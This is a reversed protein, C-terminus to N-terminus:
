AEKGGPRELENIMNQFKGSTPVTLRDHIEVDVRLPTEFFERVFRRLEEGHKQSWSGDSALRVLVRDAAKQIVQHQWHGGLKRMLRALIVSSKRRGDPLHFMPSNKGQVRALLPLGRGCPCTQPGVTAEDGVQYRIFPGRCNHLHTVYVQGTEGPGCPQGQADLVELLVNEAHVHMGHGQPCPSALYGAEACSYTNKVPVGFADEINKQTEEGLTDSIALIAKLTPIPGQSRALSALIELNAPYSLLYDPAIRQLWQLQVRHDQQIDMVHAPGTVLLSNLEALWGTQKAGQLLTQLTAGKKGTSRIAALTGGTDIGCWELDRMFFACWWLHVLNTQLVTTPTGSSGSTQCENTAVTGPPLRQAAFSAVREQYTRRPLLPIRRFDEVTRMAGPTIGAKPLVERYYPVNIICHALLERVQEMQRQQLAARDLWQTRQLELYAVWVQAVTADALAPWDYGPLTRLQFCSMTTEPVIGRM